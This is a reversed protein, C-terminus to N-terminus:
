RSSRVVLQTPMAVAVHPRATGAWVQETQEIAPASVYTDRVPAHRMYSLRSAEHRAKRIGDLVLGCALALCSIVLTFSSVFLTPLRPVFGTSLYEVLVPSALLLSAAAFLAALLGFFYMPREHRTLSLIVKLIRWGDRYTRLKSESGEARDRFGVRVSTSPIRLALSHVTLETEIEFERSVAPFSKVFRRSFVRYGSLMDGMSDGFIASVMLNLVRNGTEHAPRYASGNRCGEVQRRVGVVHDLNENVLKAVLLPAAAADYTDDGDILLYIDADIDAFARRVVNGKGKLPESCVVAGADLARRGTRDTSCNDYVYVTIGPMSARLDAVVKAVAAEENHCPVIAAIRYQEALSV